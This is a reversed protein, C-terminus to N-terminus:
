LACDSDVHHRVSTWELLRSTPEVLPQHVQAGVRQRLCAHLAKVDAEGCAPCNAASHSPFGPSSHHTSRGGAESAIVRYSKSM